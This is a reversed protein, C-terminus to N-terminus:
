FKKENYYCKIVADPIPIKRGGLWCQLLNQGRGNGIRKLKEKWCVELFKAGLFETGLAHTDKDTDLYTLFGSVMSNVYQNKKERFKWILILLLIDSPSQIFFSSWRLLLVYPVSRLFLNDLIMIPNTPFFHKLIRGIPNLKNKYLWQRSHEEQNSFHSNTLQFEHLLTQINKKCIM